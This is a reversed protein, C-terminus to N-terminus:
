EIGEIQRFMAGIMDRYGVGTDGDEKALLSCQHLGDLVLEMVLALEGATRVEMHTRVCEELGPVSRLAALHDDFATEDSLDLQNGGGFWQTIAAYAAPASRPAGASGPRPAADPGGPEDHEELFARRRGKPHVEPFSQLFVERVAKGLIHRAVTEAGEQEGEYVLEVKGTVATLATRLDVLRPYVKPDGTTLARREMNSLLNELFTITLRVSVGSNQDVFESDRAHAAAAEIIHRALEPVVLEVGTDARETWAEQSTISVAEDVTKPYHTIIQSGIRDKLPTIINGRNTYDEPNASYVMLLDLPLRVPFGRIQIDKEQMLNLLGVQIRPQLDPLENIAFIGRNTRPVIGFHIIEPDAYTRKEAAAKIPDIDGLLDAMTVDPTALKEGYRADRGIWEIPTEDGAEQVTRQARVSVPRFPDDNLDGGRVVPMFEDLLAPLQRLIRSKAQGRLGLLIFDHRSLLANVIQPVVTKEYGIIGPFLPRGSRLVELLNERIEEKVTRSRYGSEKLEGLTAARSM